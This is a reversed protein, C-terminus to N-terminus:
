KVGPNKLRVRRRRTLGRQWEVETQNKELTVDSIGFERGVRMANHGVGDPNRFVVIDNTRLWDFIGKSDEPSIKTIAQEIFGVVHKGDNTMVVEVM